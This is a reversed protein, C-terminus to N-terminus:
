DKGIRTLQYNIQRAGYEETVSFQLGDILQIELEPGPPVSKVEKISASYVAESLKVQANQQKGLERAVRPSRDIWFEGAEKDTICKYLIAYYNGPYDLYPKLQISNKDVKGLMPFAQYRLHPMAFSQGSNSAFIGAEQKCDFMEIPRSYPTIEPLLTATGTGKDFINDKINFELVTKWKITLGGALHETGFELRDSGNIALQWRGNVEAHAPHISLIFIILYKLQKYM